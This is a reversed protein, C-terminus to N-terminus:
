YEFQEDSLGYLKQLVLAKFFMVRHFAPRGEKKPQSRYQPKELITRFSEFDITEIIAILLNKLVILRNMRNQGDSFGSQNKNKM